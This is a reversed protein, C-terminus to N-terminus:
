SFLKLLNELIEVKADHVALATCDPVVRYIKCLNLYERYQDKELVILDLIDSKRIM